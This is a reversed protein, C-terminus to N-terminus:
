LDRLDWHPNTLYKLTVTRNQTNGTSTYMYWKYRMATSDGVNNDAFMFQGSRTEGVTVSTKIHVSGVLTSYDSIGGAGDASGPESRWCTLIHDAFSGQLYCSITGIIVVSQVNQTVTHELGTLELGPLTINANTSNTGPSKTVKTKKGNLVSATFDALDSM